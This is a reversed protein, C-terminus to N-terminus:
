LLNKIVFIVILITSAINITSSIILQRRLLNYLSFLNSVACVFMGLFAAYDMWLTVLCIFPLIALVFPM